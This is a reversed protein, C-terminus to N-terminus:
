SRARAALLVAGAADTAVFAAERVGAVVIGAIGVLISHKVDRVM